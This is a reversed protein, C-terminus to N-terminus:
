EDGLLIARAIAFLTGAFAGAIPLTAIWGLLIKFFMRLNVGEGSGGSSLGVGAIAGVLVSTTSIPLGEDTALLVAVAAGFQAAFGKSYTLAVIKKGVTEMVKHGLTALGIVIFIGGIPTVYWLSTAPEDLTGTTAYMILDLLPGVANAVDNGGHGLSVCCATMILPLAFWAEAASRRELIGDRDIEEEDEAEEQGAAVQTFGGEKVVAALELNQSVRRVLASTRSARYRAKLRPVLFCISLFCATFFVIIWVLVYVFWRQRRMMNEPLGTFVFLVLTALTFSILYPAITEAAAAPDATRLVFRRLMGHIAAAIIGGLVPSVFWSAATLALEKGNVASGGAEILACAVVAGVISHTSSVPLAFKTAIAIWIGAGFLASLMAGAYVKPSSFSAMDIIGSSITSSVNGGILTSGLLEFIAAIICASRVSLAGSGVSTGLANAVDNAGTFFLLAAALVAGVILLGLGDAM